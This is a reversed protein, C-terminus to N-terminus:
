RCIAARRWWLVRAVPIYSRVNGSHVFEAQLVLSRRYLGENLFLPLLTTEKQEGMGVASSIEGRLEGVELPEILAPCMRHSWLERMRCILKDCQKAVFSGSRTDPYYRCRWLEIRLFEM